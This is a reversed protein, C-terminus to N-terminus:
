SILYGRIKSKPVTRETIKGRIWNAERVRITDDNVAIVYSAHNWELAIEGVKAEQTQPQAKGAYGISRTIGAERKAYVVCEEYSVGVIKIDYGSNSYSSSGRAEQLKARKEERERQLRENAIQNNSEGLIFVRSNSDNDRDVGMIYRHIDYVERHQIPETKCCSIGRLILVVLFISNLLKM